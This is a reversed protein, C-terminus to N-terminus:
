VFRSGTSVLRMLAASLASRGLGAGRDSPANLNFTYAPSAPASGRGNSLILAEAAVRALDRLISEAMREFDLEGSRAARALSQEIREGAKAFAAELADAADRGTQLALGDLASAAKSFSQELPDM